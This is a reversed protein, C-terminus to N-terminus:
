RRLPICTLNMTHLSKNDYRHYHRNQQQYDADDLDGAVGPAPDFVAVALHSCPHALTVDFLSLQTGCESEEGWVAVPRRAKGRLVRSRDGNSQGAWKGRMGVVVAEWGM